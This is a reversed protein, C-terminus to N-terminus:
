DIGEGGFSESGATDALDPLEREIQEPDQGSELRSVVEDFESGMDEGLESSMQRMMKGLARPDEDLGELNSPDAMESMRSHDSRKFRIKGIRRNVHESECFPCTVQKKGYDAYSLFIEFRKKCDQCRYEYRPM